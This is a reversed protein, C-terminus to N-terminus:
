SVIVALALKGWASVVTGLDGLTCVLIDLSVSPSAHTGDLWLIM